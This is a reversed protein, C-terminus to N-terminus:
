SVNITGSQAYIEFITNPVVCVLWATCTGNGSPTSAGNWSMLSTYTQGIGIQDSTFLVFQSGSPVIQWNGSGYGSVIFADGFNAVSPLSYTIQSSNNTNVYANGAVLSTNTTVANWIFGGGSPSPPNNEVLTWNGGSYTIKFLNVTPVSNPTVTTSVLAMDTTNLQNGEAVFHNLYGPTIVTAYNDNTQIYIFGPVQGSQGIPAIQFSLIPM